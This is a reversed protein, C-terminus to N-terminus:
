KQAGAINSLPLGRALRAQRFKVGMSQDTLWKRLPAIRDVALLGGARAHGLLFLDNSFIKVLSDTYRITSDFDKKRLEEYDLTLETHKITKDQKALLDALVAVDRLALNLGQGAVPHLTHSANGILVIREATNRESRVLAFPFSSRQGVRTFQGLRYGFAKGLERLFTKDDYALIEEAKETPHTWILSCRNKSMPLLAIPGSSTFREFAQNQHPKETSVNAIVGVQHYDSRQISINSLTRISSNAGDAAVMLQGRLTQTQGDNNLNVELYDDHHTFSEVKNPIFRDITSNSLENYLQKGLLRSEVLYGLAEVKEKEASIRAAGFHGRDSVHIKKIATADTAVAPWTGMGKYILSSGYSLAIARDDYAPHQSDKPQFADILAVKLGLPKLAVALSAGVMGGGVIIVDYLTTKTNQETTKM